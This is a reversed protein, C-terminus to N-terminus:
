HPLLHIRDCPLSFPVQRKNRGSADKGDDEGDATAEGDEDDEGAFHQKFLQMCVVCLNLTRHHRRAPFRVMCTSCICARALASLHALAPVECGSQKQSRPAPQVDQLLAAPHRGHRHQLVPFAQLKLQLHGARYRLWLPCQTGHSEEDPREEAQHIDGAGVRSMAHFWSVPSVESVLCFALM